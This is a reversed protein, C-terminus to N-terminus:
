FIIVGPKESDTLEFVCWSHLDDKKKLHEFNFRLKLSTLFFQSFTKQKQSIQMQAHTLLNDRKLLSYKDEATLTNLFLEFIKCMVLVPKECSFQMWLSWYIHSLQDRESKLLTETRKGHSNHFPVESIPSKLCKDLWTKRLGYTWFDM